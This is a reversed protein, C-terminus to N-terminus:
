WRASSPTHLGRSLTGLIILATLCVILAINFWALVIIGPGFIKFVLAHLYASFPGYIYHIDKYLVQGEALQWPIYVQRGFDVILDPWKRWSIAAMFSGAAM